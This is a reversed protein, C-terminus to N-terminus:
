GGAIRHVEQARQNYQAAALELVQRLTYNGLEPDDAAKELDEPRLDHLLNGFRRHAVQLAMVAERLTSFEARSLCPPQPLNLARAVLRGFYFNIDDVTRETIRKVSEGDPENEAFSEHDTAQLAQVLDVRAADLRRLLDDAETTQARKEAM